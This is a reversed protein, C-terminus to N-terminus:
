KNMRRKRGSVTIELRPSVSYSLSVGADVVQGDDVFVVGRMSDVIIKTFNDFDPKSEPRIYGLEALLRKYPSWSALMPRFIELTLVVEGAYPIHGSPLQRCVTDRLSEQDEADAAFVRVGVVAGTQKNKIRTARPRKSIPPDGRVVFKLEAHGNDQENEAIFALARKIDVPKLGGVREAAAEIHGDPAEGGYLSHNLALIQNQM